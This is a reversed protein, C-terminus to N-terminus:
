LGLVAFNASKVVVAKWAAKVKAVPRKNETYTEQISWVYEFGKKSIKKGEFSYDKENLQISFNFSVEVLDSGDGKVPASFSAGMFMVEGAEWGFFPANNVKGVLKHLQRRYTTSYVDSRRMTKTYTESMEGMQVDVGDIQSDDGEKGNWGIFKHANQPNGYIQTQEYAETIHITTAGCSFSVSAEQEEEPEEEQESTTAEYVAVMNLNGESDYSDFRVRSLPLGDFAPPVNDIVTQVAASKGGEPNVIFVPIEASKCKGNLSWEASGDAQVFVKQM